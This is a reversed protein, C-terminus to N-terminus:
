TAKSRRLRAIARNVEKRSIRNESEGEAELVRWKKGLVRSKVRKLLRKLYQTSEDVEFEDNIGTRGGRKRNVVEKQRGERITKKIDEM